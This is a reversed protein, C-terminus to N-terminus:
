FKDLRDGSEPEVVRNTVPEANNAYSAETDARKPLVEASAVTQIDMDDSFILVHLLELTEM